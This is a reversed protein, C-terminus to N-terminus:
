KQHCLEKHKKHWDSTSTQWLAVTKTKDTGAPLTFTIGTQEEIKAITVKYPNMDGKSTNQNNMLFGIVENTKTDIAIKYFARPKATGDPMTAPTADLVPGVYVVLEGRQFAWSRVDEELSEWGQRNMGPLQPWINATSYSDYLATQDWANDQDPSMHGLDQGTGVYAGPNQRAEPPLQDDAHFNSKRPLCGFTHDGTLHYAILRPGKLTKDYFSTYNTHCVKQISGPVNPAGYTLPTDCSVGQPIPQQEKAANAHALFLFLLAGAATTAESMVRM